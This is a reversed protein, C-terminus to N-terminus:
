FSQPTNDPIFELGTEETYTCGVFTYRNEKDKKIRYEGTRELMKLKKTRISLEYKSVVIPAKDHIEEFFKDPIISVSDLGERTYVGDREMNDKVYHHKKQVEEYIRSGLLYSDHTTVDFGKYVDDVLELLHFETLRQGSLKSLLDFTNELVQDVDTYIVERTVKQEKFVIVKTNDKGRKRNVRGARQIIADIPANETYLIDFDIDLSVEVVQTAVLLLSKATKEKALILQEKALRHKQIFRSHYCITEEAIGQYENYLRIAEDVTNVVILVKKGAALDEIIEEKIGDVEVSRVQFENRAENLLEKDNIVAQDTIELTEKLLKKLKTPMTATMIFFRTGFEEKLYKITSVILALTYPAYLHIEDIIVWGNLLHFTKLEWYGLNFGQTLIQDITCVNINRFFTKDVLYDGKSYDDDDDTEKRFFFASSHVVALNKDGFYFKLRDFIANSTVRTPLLYIIKENESKQSAWLLSAETKGSGTPAIALAHNKQAASEIQFTRWKFGDAIDTKGDNILKDVIKAKLDKESYRYSEFLLGHNSGSWDATNLLAKYFIYQKRDEPKLRPFIRGTYQRYKKYLTEVAKVTVLEEALGDPIKLEVKSKNIEQQLLKILTKFEEFSLQLPKDKDKFFLEDTLPKHHSFVALLPFPNELFYKGDCLLLFLGSFFEHRIHNDWHSVLGNIKEQFNGTIKGTDHFLASLFYCRWFDDEVQIKHRYLLTLEQSYKVVEKTHQLLTERPTSKAIIHDLM